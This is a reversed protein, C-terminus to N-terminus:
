LSHAIMYLFLARFLLLPEGLDDPCVLLQAATDIHTNTRNTVYIMGKSRQLSYSRSASPSFAFEKVSDGASTHSEYVSIFDMSPTQLEELMNALQGALLVEALPNIEV